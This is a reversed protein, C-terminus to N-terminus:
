FVEPKKVVVNGCRPCRGQKFKSVVDEYKCKKCRLGKLLAGCEACVEDAPSVTKTCHACYHEAARFVQEMPENQKPESGWFPAEQKTFFLLLLTHLIFYVITFVPILIVFVYQVSPQTNVLEPRPKIVFFETVANIVAIFALFFGLVRAWDKKFVIGAGVLLVLFPYAMSILMAESLIAYDKYGSIFLPFLRPLVILCAGLFIDFIGTFIILAQNKLKM